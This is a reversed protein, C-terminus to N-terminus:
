AVLVRLRLLEFAARGYDQRNLLKVKHVNGELTRNSWTQTVAAAVTVHDALMGNAVGALSPIGSAQADTLWSTLGAADQEKLM